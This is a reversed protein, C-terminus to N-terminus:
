HAAPPEAPPVFLKEDVPVNQQVKDIQITFSGSPRRHTWRFPIKVGDVDRFDAYDIQTPLSGLPTDRYRILRLLLGSQADFYLRLSPKGPAKASLLITDHGDLKEGAGPRFEKYMSAVHAPFYLDADIRAGEGEASSMRHIGNPITM